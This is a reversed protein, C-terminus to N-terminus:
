RTSNDLYHDYSSDLTTGCYVTSLCCVAGGAAMETAARAKQTDRCASGCLEYYRDLDNIACRM